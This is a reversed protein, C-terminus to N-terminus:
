TAGAGVRMGGRTRARQQLPASGERLTELVRRMEPIVKHAPVGQGERSANVLLAEVRPHELPLVRLAVDDPLDTLVAVPENRITVVLTQGRQVAAIAKTPKRVLDRISIMQM